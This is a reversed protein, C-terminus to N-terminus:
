LYDGDVLMKEYVQLKQVLGAKHTDICNVLARQLKLIRIELGEKNVVIGSKIKAEKAKEAKKAEMKDKLAKADEQEKREKDKLEIAEQISEESLTTDEKLDKAFELKTLADQILDKAKGGPQWASGVGLEEFTAKLSGYPLKSLNTKNANKVTIKM